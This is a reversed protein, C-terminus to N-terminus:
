AGTADTPTVWKVPERRFWIVQRRAFRRTRQQIIPIAEDMALEDQVVQVLERYGVGQMPHAEPSVDAALLQRVEALWGRDIMEQVRRNIRSYLEGRPRELGVLEFTVEGAGEVTITPTEAYGGEGKRWAQVRSPPQGTSHLIELARTLRRVNHHHFTAAYDPDIEAFAAYVAEAGEYEIRAQIKRRLQPDSDGLSALGLRIARVYLGTGGCLIPEKGRAKIDAIREYVLGAYRGATIKESPDLFNVLHHPVQAQEEPTPQGTGIVFGRYIQRSDVSIIEGDLELARELAYATKGSATPGVVTLINMVSRCPTRLDM